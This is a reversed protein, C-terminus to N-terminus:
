LIEKMNGIAHMLIYLSVAVSLLPDIFVLGTFRMVVAGILVVIWGLVDELMHLNVSRQNLSDGKRTVIAAALNVVVGICAFVIMGNYQIPTPHFLKEISHIIVACSGILLILTTLASGLVSFRGYGYTYAQDPAKKSKKELFWAIGISAADGFDHLADSIIAISGIGLGGILEAVSFLLNLIFAILINRQTKMIGGPQM